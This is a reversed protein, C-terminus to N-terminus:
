ILSVGDWVRCGCGSGSGEVRLEPVGLLDGEGGCNVEVRKGEEKGVVGLRRMVEWAREGGDRGADEEVAGVIARVAQAMVEDSM